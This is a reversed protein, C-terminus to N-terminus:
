VCMHWVREEPYESGQRLQAKVQGAVFAQAHASPLLLAGPPSQAGLFCAEGSCAQEPRSWRGQGQWAQTGRFLILIRFRFVLPM